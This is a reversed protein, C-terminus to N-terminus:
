SEPIGIEGLRVGSLLDVRDTLQDHSEAAREDILGYVIDDMDRLSRWLERCRGRILRSGVCEILVLSGRLRCGLM